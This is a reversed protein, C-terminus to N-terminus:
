DVLGGCTPKGIAPVGHDGIRGLASDRYNSIKNLTTLAQDNQILVTAAPV